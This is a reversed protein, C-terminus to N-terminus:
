ENREATNKNNDSFYFKIQAGEIGFKGMFKIKAIEM